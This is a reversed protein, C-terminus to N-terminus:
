YSFMAAVATSFKCMWLLLYFYRENQARRLRQNPQATCKSRDKTEVVM